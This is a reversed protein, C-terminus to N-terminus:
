TNSSLEEVAKLEIIIVDEVLVDLQLFNDLEVGKYLVPMKVQRQV